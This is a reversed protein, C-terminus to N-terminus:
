IWRTIDSLTKRNKDNMESKEKDIYGVPFIAIPELNSPLDLAESLLDPIFNCVWCTGLGQESAALCIHQAAIAADVDGFDKGDSASRKWASQSDKCVVIYVPATKFWARNYSAQIKSKALVDIIVYFHWPQLNCASPALRACNLIYEIKESAIPRDLYARVSYRSELLEKLNM